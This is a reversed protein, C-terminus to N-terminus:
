YIVKCSENLYEGWKFKCRLTFVGVFVIFDAVFIVTDM